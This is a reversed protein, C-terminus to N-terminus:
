PRTVMVFTPHLLKTSDPGRETGPRIYERVVLKFSDGSQVMRTTISLCRGQTLSELGECNRTLYYVFLKNTDYVTTYSSASGKLQADNINAIGVFHSSENVSLGVYSANGTETGLTGTVAYIEGHDLPLNATLMYTTDQTDGLCNMGIERCDPGVANFPKAQGDLFKTPPSSCADWRKCVASSLDGLDAKYKAERNASRADLVADPYPKAARRSSPRERVRLVSLPLIRRWAKGAATNNPLAYRIVTLFDDDTKKLGLKFGPSAIPETFVDKGPIGVGALKSRVVRNMTRDPTIVFAKLTGWSSGSQRQMVVNNNSNSLSSFSEIRSPERPVKTFLTDLFKPFKKAILRYTASSTDFTGKRTWLYSQVGMYRAPPPMVGFIVIAERRDVRHTASYGRGTPLFLNRMTPDVYEGPWTPVIPLIYPAAANNAFCTGWKPITYRKCDRVTWLTPYGLAVQYRGRFENVLRKTLRKVTQKGGIAFSGAGAARTPVRARSSTPAAVPVTAM